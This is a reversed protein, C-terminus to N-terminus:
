GACVSRENPLPPLAYVESRVRTSLADPDAVREARIELLLFFGLMTFLIGVPAAAM